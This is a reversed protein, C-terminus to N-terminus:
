WEASYEEQLDAGVRNQHTPLQRVEAGFVAKSTPLLDSTLIILTYCCHAKHVSYAPKVHLLLKDKKFWKTHLQSVAKM